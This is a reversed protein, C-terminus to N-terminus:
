MAFCTHRLNCLAGDPNASINQCCPNRMFRELLCCRVYSSVEMPRNNRSLLVGLNVLVGSDSADVSLATRFVKEAEASQGMELLLNGVSQM